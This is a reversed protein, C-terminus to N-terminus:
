IKNIKNKNEGSSAGGSIVLKLGDSVKMDLFICDERPMFLLFGSTPNPTTPVFVSLLGTKGAKVAIENDAKAENTVFALTYIGKRPYEIMVVKRFMNGKPSWLAEGIQRSTAYVSNLIPVKMLLWETFDGLIRGLKYSMFQGVALLILIILLLTAVRVGQQIWFLRQLGPAFYEVVRIAWNTMRIYIFGALWFTILLPVLAIVGSLLRRKFWPLLKIRTKRM